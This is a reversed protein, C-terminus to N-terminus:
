MEVNNILDLPEDMQLDRFLDIFKHGDINASNGNPCTMGSVVGMLMCIVPRVSYIM